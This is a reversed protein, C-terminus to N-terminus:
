AVNLQVHLLVAANRRQGGACRPRQVVGDRRAAVTDVVNVDNPQRVLPQAGLVQEVDANGITHGRLDGARRQRGGARPRRGHDVAEGGRDGLVQRGRRDVVQGVVVQARGAWVPLEPGGVVHEVVQAAGAVGRAQGDGVLDGVPWQLWARVLELGGGADCVAGA